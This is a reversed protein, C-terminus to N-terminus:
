GRPVKWQRSSVNTQPFNAYWFFHLLSHSLYGLNRNPFAKWNSYSIKGILNAFFLSIQLNNLRIVRGYETENWHGTSGGCLSTNRRCCCANCWILIQLQFYYFGFHQEQHTQQAPPVALLVSLTIGSITFMRVTPLFSQFHSHFQAGFCHLM